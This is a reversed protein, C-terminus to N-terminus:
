KASDSKSQATIHATDKPFDVPKETPKVMSDSVNARNWKKVVGSDTPKAGQKRVPAPTTVDESDIVLNLIPPRNLSDLKAPEVWGQRGKRNRIKTLPTGWKLVEVVEGKDLTYLPREYVRRQDTPYVNAPGRVTVITAAGALGVAVLISAVIRPKM